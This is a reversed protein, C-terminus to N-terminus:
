VGACFHWTAFLADMFIVLEHYISSMWSLQVGIFLGSYPIVFHTNCNEVQQNCKSSVTWVHVNSYTNTICM